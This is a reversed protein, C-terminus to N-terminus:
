PSSYLRKFVEKEDADSLQKAAELGLTQQEAANHRDLASRYARSASGHVCARDFATQESGAARSLELCNEAYRVAAEGLGAVAYVTALLSQARLDNLPNGVTRWHWAASHAADIMERIDASSLSAAEMLSWSRNNAEVAFWRHARSIDFPADAM